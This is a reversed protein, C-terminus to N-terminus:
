RLAFCQRQRGAFVAGIEDQPERRFCVAAEFLHLRFDGPDVMEAALAYAYRSWDRCSVFLEAPLDFPLLWVHVATDKARAGAADASSRVPVGCVKWAQPLIVAAMCRAASVYRGSKGLGGRNSVCDEEGRGPSRPRPEPGPLLEARENLLKPARGHRGSCKPRM